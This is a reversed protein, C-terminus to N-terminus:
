KADKRRKLDYAISSRTAKQLFRVDIEGLKQLKGTLDRYTLEAIGDKCNLVNFINSKVAMSITVKMGVKWLM